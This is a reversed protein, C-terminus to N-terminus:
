DVVEMKLGAPNLAWPHRYKEFGTIKTLPFTPDSFAGIKIGIRDADVDSTYYVTSGSPNRVRQWVAEPVLQLSM